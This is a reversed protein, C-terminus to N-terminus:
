MKWTFGLDIVNVGVNVRGLQRPPGVQDIKPNGYVYAYAYRLLASLESSFAVELMAGGVLLSTTPLVSPWYVVSQANAVYEAVGGLAVRESFQYRAAWMFSWIDQYNLPIFVDGDASNKLFLNKEASWWVFRATEALTWESTVHHILNLTFTAPAIVNDSFDTRIISGRTSTYHISKL